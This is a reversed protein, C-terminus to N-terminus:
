VKFFPTMAQYKSKALVQDTTVNSTPHSALYEDLAQEKFDLARTHKYKSIELFNVGEKKCEAGADTLASTALDIAARHGPVAAAYCDSAVAVHLGHLSPTEGLSFILNVLRYCISLGAGPAAQYSYITM